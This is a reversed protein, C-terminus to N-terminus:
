LIKCTSSYRQNISGSGIRRPTQPWPQTHSGSCKLHSYPDGNQCYYHYSYCHCHLCYYSHCYHYYYYYDYHGMVREKGKGTPRLRILFPQRFANLACAHQLAESSRSPSYALLFWVPLRPKSQGQLKVHICIYIYIYRMINRCSRALDREM